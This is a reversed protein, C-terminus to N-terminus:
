GTRGPNSSTSPAIAWVPITPRSRPPMACIPRAWRSSVGAEPCYGCRRTSSSAPLLTSYWTWEREAPLRPSSHEFDTTRSNAIHDDDFGMDRLTDWKPPSATAYVECGLAPRTAGGGDRRRGYRRAGAPTRGRQLSALDALAYYATLFVAPVTAAQAFSWGAPMRAITRHDACVVAGAGAFMGFVRDGPAFGLVDDAVELVIGAGECGIMADPDPYMGLAVMTDRFNVGICRVGIRVQGAALAAATEPVPRLTFNQRDLTGRGLTALQWNDSGGPTIGSMAEAPM